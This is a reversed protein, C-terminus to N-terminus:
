PTAPAPDPAPTEVMTFAVLIGYTAGHLEPRPWRVQDLIKSACAAVTGSRLTNLKLANLVVKANSDTKLAYGLMGTELDTNCAAFESLRADLAKQAEEQSVRGLTGTVTATTRLAPSPADAVAVSILAALLWPM